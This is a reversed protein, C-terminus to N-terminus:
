AYKHTVQMVVFIIIAVLIVCLIIILLDTIGHKLFVHEKENRQKEGSAQINLLKATTLQDLGSSDYASGGVLNSTNDTDAQVDIDSMIASNRVLDEEGKGLIKLQKAM